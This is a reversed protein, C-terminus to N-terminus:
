KVREIPFNGDYFLGQGLIDLEFHEGAVDIIVRDNVRKWQGKILSNVLFEGEAKFTFMFRNDKWTTGILQENTMPPGSSVGPHAADFEAKMETMRKERHRFRREWTEVPASYEYYGIFMEQFTQDGFRVTDNPDPNAPNTVSNDYGGDCVLRAGRTMVKPEPFHYMTQWDFDFHPVSLLVEATGDPQIATYKFRSGRYHMHPSLGWLKAETWFDDEASVAHDHTRPPIQFMTESAAETEMREAPPEKCFYFAMETKDQEPKGTPVYHMQFTFTAGAPAFKGTNEPYFYPEAGPVFGAFYGGLGGGVHPERAKKDDPYEIFILAHHVVKPNGARVEIGRIWKDETFGSPLKIVAYPLVGEAPIDHPEQMGIIVDPTGLKWERSPEAPVAALPDPGEGRPADANLWTLLSRAQAETLSRDNAFHGYAPDAHWPPMRKTLLVERIMGKRSRVADYSDLAFPAAGNAHHCNGCKSQLLPAIADSYAAPTELDGYLSTNDMPVTPLPETIQGAAFRQLAEHLLTAGSPACFAALPGDFLVNLEKDLLLAEGVHDLGLQRLVMTNTDVLVPVADAGEATGGGKKMGLSGLLAQAGKLLAENAPPATEIRDSAPQGGDSVVLGFFKVQAAQFETALQALAARAQPADPGAAHWAAIVIAPSDTYRQLEHSFGRTDLLRFNAAKRPAPPEGVSAQVLALAILISALYKM